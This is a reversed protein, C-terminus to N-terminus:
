KKTIYVMEAAIQNVLTTIKSEEDTDVAKKFGLFYPSSVTTLAKCNNETITDCVVVSSINKTPLSPDSAIKSFLIIPAADDAYRVEYVRSGNQMKAEIRYGVQKLYHIMKESIEGTQLGASHIGLRKLKKRYSLTEAFVESVQSRFTNESCYFILNWGEHSLQSTALTYRLNELSQWHKTDIWESKVSNFYTELKPYLRPTPDHTQFSTVIFTLGIIMALLLLKKM